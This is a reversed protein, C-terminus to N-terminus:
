GHPMEDDGCNDSLLAVGSETELVHLHSGYAAVLREPVFVEEPSGFALLRRNLLMVRDFREAALNLDHTAVM